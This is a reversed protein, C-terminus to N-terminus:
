PMARNVNSDTQSGVHFVACGSGTSPIVAGCSAHKRANQSSFMTTTQRPISDIRSSSLMLAGSSMANPSAKSAQAYTFAPPKPGINECGDCNAAPCGLAPWNQSKKKGAKVALTLKQAVSDSLM